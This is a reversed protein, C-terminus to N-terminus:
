AAPHKDTCAQISAKHWFWVSAAFRWDALLVFTLAFACERKFGIALSDGAWTMTLPTDSMSLERVELFDRGDYQLLQVRKRCAAALM